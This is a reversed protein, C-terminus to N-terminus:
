MALCILLCKDFAVLMPKHRSLHVRSNTTMIVANSGIEFTLLSQSVKPSVRLVPFQIKVVMRSCVTVTHQVHKSNTNKYISAASLDTVTLKLNAPRFSWWLHLSHSMDPSRKVFQRNSLAAVLVIMSSVMYYNADLDEVRRWSTTRQCLCINTNILSQLNCDRPIRRKDSRPSSGVNLFSQSVKWVDSVVRWMFFRWIGFSIFYVAVSSHSGRLTRLHKVKDTVEYHEM